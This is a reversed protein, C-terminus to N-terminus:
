RVSFCGLLFYKHESDGVHVGVGIGYSMGASYSTPAKSGWNSYPNTDNPAYYRSGLEEQTVPDKAPWSSTGVSGGMSGYPTPVLATGTLSKFRGTYDTPERVGHGWVAGLTANASAGGTGVGAGLGWYFYFCVECTDCLVIAQLGLPTVQGGGGIHHLLPSPVSASGTVDFNIGVFNGYGKNCYKAYLHAAADPRLLNSNGTLSSTMRPYRGPMATVPPIDLKLSHATWRDILKIGTGRYMSVSRISLKAAHNEVDVSLKSARIDLKGRGMESAMEVTVSNFDSRAHLRAAGPGNVDVVLNAGSLGVSVEGFLFGPLKVMNAFLYKTARGSTVMDFGCTSRLWTKM